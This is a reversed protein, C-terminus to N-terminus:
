LLMGYFNDIVTENTMKTINVDTYCYTESNFSSQAHPTNTYIFQLKM